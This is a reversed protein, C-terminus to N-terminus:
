KRIGSDYGDSRNVVKERYCVLPKDQIMLLNYVFITFLDSKNDINTRNIM